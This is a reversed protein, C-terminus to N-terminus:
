RDNPKQMEVVSFFFKEYYRINYLSLSLSNSNNTKIQGYNWGIKMQIEDRGDKSWLKLKLELKDMASQM